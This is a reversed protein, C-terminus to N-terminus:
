RGCYTSPAGDAYIIECDLNKGCEECYHSKPENGLPYGTRLASTINPHELM